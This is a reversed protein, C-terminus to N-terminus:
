PRIRQTKETEVRLPSPDMVGDSFERKRIAELCPLGALSALVMLALTAYLPFYSEPFFARAGLRQVWTGVLWHSLNGVLGCITIFLGFVRGRVSDHVTEMLAAETIPYSAIFFFGFALLLPVMWAVPVRPFVCIFAASVILLFSVWPIRGGDSLRGFLPNSITSALYIGSLALGASKPNFGHANQLFLSASTAMAMGAFDRLSLAFSGGLFFAWLAPTPFMKEPKASIPPLPLHNQPAEGRPDASREERALWAFLCAGLLGLVGIELVPARWSGSAVARWGCYIPGLFFGASAGIGVLGLARGKAEPFMRAILATAAPHYFTGGLGSLVVSALAWGYNPALSLGIFGLANIALGATLLKKRSLRDALAGLPYSPLFYALGMVTVLLTAQEVSSLRLEHQIRLYLPLLAVQYLHTFGHLVGVLWLTQTKHQGETKM